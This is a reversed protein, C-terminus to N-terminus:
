SDRFEKQELEALLNDCRQQLDKFDCEDLQNDRAFAQIARAQRIVAKQQEKNKICKSIKTLTEVLKITVSVSSRGYQRIQDFCANTIGEFTVPNAIIRLNDQDDYYRSNPFKRDTLFCVASGLRDTCAM